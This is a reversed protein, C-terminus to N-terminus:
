ASFIPHDVDGREHRELHAPLGKDDLVSVSAPRRRSAGALSTPPIMYLMAARAQM